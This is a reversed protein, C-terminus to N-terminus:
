VTYLPLEKGVNQSLRDTGAEPTLFDLLYFLSGSFKVLVTKKNPVDDLKKLFCAM